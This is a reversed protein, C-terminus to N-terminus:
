SSMSPSRSTKGERGHDRETNMLTGPRIGLVLQLNRAVHIQELLKNVLKMWEMVALAFVGVGLLFIGTKDLQM